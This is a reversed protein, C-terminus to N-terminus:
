HQEYNSRLYNKIKVCADIYGATKEFDQIDDRRMDLMLDIYDIVHQEENCEIKEQSKIYALISIFITAGVGAIVGPFFYYLQYVQDMLGFILLTISLSFFIFGTLKKM